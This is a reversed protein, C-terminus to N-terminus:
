NGELATIPCISFRNHQFQESSKRSSARTPAKALKKNTSYGTAQIYSFSKRSLIAGSRDVTLVTWNGVWGRDLRKSSYVRWRPGKVKFEVEAMVKGKYLWRHKIKKGQMARIDTFFYIKQQNNPLRQINNTPERNNIATTFLARKVYGTSKTASYKKTNYQKASSGKPTTSCASTFVAAGLIFAVLSVRKLTVRRRPSAETKRLLVILSVVFLVVLAAAAISPNMM